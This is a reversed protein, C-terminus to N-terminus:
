IITFTMTIPQDVLTSIIKRSNITVGFQPHWTSDQVSILQSSKVLITSGNLYVELTFNDRQRLNIDPHFHYVVYAANFRGTLSDTVTLSDKTVTLRRRHIPRGKLRRYGDHYAQIDISNTCESVFELVCNARRAVRFGGWVESSDQDNVVVTNHAATQRQRLREASVGYLSTGSNVLVRQNGVSWEISLSDAHAHGPLYGPGIAAHDFLVVHAPMEIRSYGSEELTFVSHGLKNEELDLDCLQAYDSLIRPSPAIGIAADNFFSIENDPHTMVSLWHMAKQAVSRWENVYEELEPNGSTQALTILDFLDWLLIEHYMPSREFHGGDKLFQESIERNLLSLGKKLYVPSRECKLFTGVFVLAKANAFLHNGLIHYELQQLLAESQQRLSVLLLPDNESQRSLWKVWNVLRLSIPYPEWGNGKFPPNEETWRRVLRCHLQTRSVSDIANLDDFYHANYLWLKSKSPRNWDVLSALKGFEGLFCANDGDFLCPDIYTPSSWQFSAVRLEDSFLKPSKPTTLRRLVRFLIQEWRLYKVTHYLRIMKQLSM